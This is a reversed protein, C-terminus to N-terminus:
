DEAPLHGSYIEIPIQFTGKGKARKVEGLRGAAKARIIMAKISSKQKRANFHAYTWWTHSALSNFVRQPQNAYRYYNGGEISPM